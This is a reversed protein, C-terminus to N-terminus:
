DVHVIGFRKAFGEAWEFNDLLTWVFYGRVDVGAAIATQLAALHGQLYEVRLPDDVTGDAAPVDDYAAGNETIYVPPLDYGAQLDVLVERLGDPQVPWNVSTVPVGEPLVTEAQLEATPAERVLIRRYYNIGLFDIPAGILALDGDQVGDLHVPYSGRLVPDLFLRHSDVDVRQAADADAQSDTAPVVPSVDLTIGVQQGAAHRGARLVELGLGHALLLHHVARDRLALDKIGPAHIGSGYGAHSSVKPENLTIWQKVVDGLADHVVAAYDAFRYATDRAPWGGKDQLAQPLDWHYLTVYPVLDRALLEDVVRRYHDLGKQNIGGSGDPQVRPWAISFRYAGLGLESMLGIDEAYRNYHDCAVEGTDGGAIAGPVRCFTDWISQGRGDADVAGEVQYAATAAGWVFGDPFRADTM